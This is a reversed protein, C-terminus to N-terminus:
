LNFLFIAAIAVPALYRVSIKWLEIGLRGSLDMEQHMRGANVAWGVFLAIMLANLPLMLNSVLFESISFLTKDAFFGFMSLPKFEALLNFSFVSALGALWTITGTAVTVPFRRWGTKETLWSVFPELMAFSSTFAAFFVLAFFLTAVFQGGPMSGLAIPLTVFMLGPGEAADLGAAFVIPFIALGALLAAVTDAIGLTWAANKVSIGRKLYAGYTIIAGTGVSISFLSQGLAVLISTPTLRSFDPNFLFRWGAVFDGVICAYIALVLLLVFLAPMLIKSALEIGKQIGRGVVVITTVLYVTHLAILTGPSALLQDFLAGAQAGDIGNFAGTAARLMYYLSWGAIVSYFTIAVLPSLISFWGIVSWFRPRSEEDCISNLTFVPNRHGRRGLALEAMVLPVGIVLIFGLYVLVFAGGGNEGAIYPFRWLNGLGVSAGVMAFLFTTRSAWTEHQM